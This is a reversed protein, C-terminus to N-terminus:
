RTSRRASGVLMRHGNPSRAVVVNVRSRADPAAVTGTRPQPRAEAPHAALEADDALMYWEVEGGRRTCRLVYSDASWFGDWREGEAHDMLLATQPAAELPEHPTPPPCSVLHM